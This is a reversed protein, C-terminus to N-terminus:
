GVSFHPYQVPYYGLSALGAPGNQYARNTVTALHVGNIRASIATGQTTLSLNYTHSAAVKGSALTAPASGNVTLHWAGSSDVKL